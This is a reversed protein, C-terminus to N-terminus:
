DTNGDMATEAMRTWSQRVEAFKKGPSYKDIPLIKKLAGDYQQLPTPLLIEGEKNKGPWKWKLKIGQKRALLDTHHVSFTVKKPITDKTLFYKMMKKTSLSIERNVLTQLESKISHVTEVEKIHNAISNSAVQFVSQIFFEDSVQRVLQVFMDKRM